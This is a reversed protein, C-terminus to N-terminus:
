RDWEALAVKMAHRARYLQAKVASPTTDFLHALDEYSAGDNHQVVIMTRSEENLQGLAVFMAEAMESEELMQEPEPRLDSRTEFSETIDLRARSRLMSIATNRAVRRLWRVPVDNEWSPMSTWAKVFVEQTVDDASSRDRLVSYAVRWVMPAHQKVLWEIQADSATTDERRDHKGPPPTLMRACDGSAAVDLEVGEPGQPRASESRTDRDPPGM